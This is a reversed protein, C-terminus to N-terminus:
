GGGGCATVGALIDARMALGVVRGAAYQARPLGLSPHAM